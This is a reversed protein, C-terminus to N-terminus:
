EGQGAMLIRLDRVNNGTYGTVIADGLRALLPYANFNHLAEDISLEADSSRALTTSDIIGGTAPSDGDIGDTGASLVTFDDHLSDMRSASYLAFQQNRGGTGASGVVNVLVEGGSLLCVRPYEVALERLRGLLYDAAARYEWDDCTNNIVVHFGRRQCAQAAALLMTEMSLVTRASARNFCPAESKPTEPLDPSELFARVREPVWDKLEPRRILDWCQNCTSSDPLTPGSGIVDLMGEPVDSILLTCKTADSAFQALRGGKVASLHKRLTNMEAINLGSHLLARYFERVEDNTINADFPLEVMASAGGSILFIVLDRSNTGSLLDMIRQAAIRSSVDPLPHSGQWRDLVLPSPAIEGPGVVIAQVVKGCDSLKGLVVEASPVAAKGIAVVSVREYADLDYSLGALRLVGEDCSVVRTFVARVDIADLMEQFIARLMARRSAHRQASSDVLEEM